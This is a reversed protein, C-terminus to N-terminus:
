AFAIGAVQNLYKLLHTRCNRTLLVLKEREAFLFISYDSSFANQWVSIPKYPVTIRSYADINTTESFFKNCLICYQEFDIRKLLEAM